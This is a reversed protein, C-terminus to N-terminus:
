GRSIVGELADQFDDLGVAIDAGEGSARSAHLQVENRRVAITLQMEPGQPPYIGNVTAVDTPPDMVSNLLEDAPVLIRTREKNGDHDSIILVIGNSGKEVRLRREVGSSQSIGYITM